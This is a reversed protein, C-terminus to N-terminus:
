GKTTHNMWTWLGPICVTGESSPFHGAGCSTIVYQLFYIACLLSVVIIRKIIVIHWEKIYLFTLKLFMISNNTDSIRSSFVNLCSMHIFLYREAGMRKKAKQIQLRIRNKQLTYYLYSHCPCTM